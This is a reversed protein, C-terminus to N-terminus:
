SRVRRPGSADVYLRRATQLVELLEDDRLDLFEQGRMAALWRRLAPATGGATAEAPPASAQLDEFFQEQAALVRFKLFELLRARLRVPQIWRCHRRDVGLELGSLRELEPIWPALVELQDPPQRHCPKTEPHPWYIWGALESAAGAWRLRCPWFSFTEPAHLPTWALQEVRLRPDRLRWEGGTVALNLTGAFCGSLDLGREAFFPAQLAITGAPYPSDPSRGSAVGYGQVRRCPYWRLQAAPIQPDAM